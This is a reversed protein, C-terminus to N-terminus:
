DVTVEFEGDSVHAVLGDGSGVQSVTRVIQQDAQRRLVAYGRELTAVPSVGELRGNLGSLREKRLSLDHELLGVARAVLDDVRQRAQSLLTVPSLHQLASRHETLAWRTERLQARLVAALGASLMDVHARLEHRDPTALEAAASPTPARLDAAFDALSFDTEHGVGCVVPARSASVARAVREDNFAWLDELSGGGRVVLVVDIDERANLGELAAVIQPPASEGQVQTPSLVVELLPYRRRLVNLVDQFAAATPSTVV